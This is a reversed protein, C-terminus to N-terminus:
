SFYYQVRVEMKLTSSDSIEDDAGHSSSNRFLRCSPLLAQVLLVAAVRNVFSHQCWHNETIQPRHNYASQETNNIWEYEVHSTKDTYTNMTLVIVVKTTYCLLICCSSTLLMEFIRNWCIFFNNVHGDKVEFRGQKISISAKKMALIM